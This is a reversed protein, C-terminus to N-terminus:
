ELYMGAPGLPKRNHQKKPPTDTFLTQHSSIRIAGSCVIVGGRTSGTANLEYFRRATHKNSHPSTTSIGAHVVNPIVDIDYLSM